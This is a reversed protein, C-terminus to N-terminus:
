GEAKGESAKSSKFRLSGTKTAKHM